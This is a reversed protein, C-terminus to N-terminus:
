CCSCLWSRLLSTAGSDLAYKLIRARPMFVDFQFSVPMFPPGLPLYCFDNENEGHSHFGPQMVLPNELQCMVLKVWSGSFRWPEEEWTGACVQPKTGSVVLAAWCIWVQSEDAKRQAANPAQIQLCHPFAARDQELLLRWVIFVVYFPPSAPETTHSQFM